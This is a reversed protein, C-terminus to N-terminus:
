PLDLERELMAKALEISEEGRPMSGQDIFAAAGYIISRIMFTKRRRAEPSLNIDRSYRAAVRYIQISINGQLNQYEPGSYRSSQMLARRVEPYETLFRIYDLAVELLQRRSDCDAFAELLEEQRASYTTIVHKLIAAIFADVDKFHKYPAASSVGCKKAVRRSSFHAAGYESLEELGARILLDRTAEGGSPNERSM